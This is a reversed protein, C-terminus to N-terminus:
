NRVGTRGEQAQDLGADLGAGFFACNSSGCHQEAGHMLYGENWGQQLSRLAYFETRHRTNAKGTEILEGLQAIRENYPTTVRKAEKAQTMERRRRNRLNRWTQGAKAM